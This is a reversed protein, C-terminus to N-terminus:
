ALEEKVRTFANEQEQGWLWATRSSLLGRLPHTIDSPHCSFKGFQNAMGM